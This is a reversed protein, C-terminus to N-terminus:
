KPRARRHARRARTRAAKSRSEDLRHTLIAEPHAAAEATTYFEKILNRTVVTDTLKALQMELAELRKELGFMADRLVEALTARAALDDVSEPGGVYRPKVFLQQDQSSSM